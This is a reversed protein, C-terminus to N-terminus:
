RSVNEGLDALVERIKGAMKNEAQAPMVKVVAKSKM